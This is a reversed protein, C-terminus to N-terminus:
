FGPILGGDTERCLSSGAKGEGVGVKKKEGEQQTARDFLMKFFFFFDTSSYTALFTHEQM